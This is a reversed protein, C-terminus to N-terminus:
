YGDDVFHQNRHDRYRRIRPHWTDIYTYARPTITHVCRVLYYLEVEGHM